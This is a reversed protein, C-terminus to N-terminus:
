VGEFDFTSSEWWSKANVPIRHNKNADQFLIERMESGGGGWSYGKERSGTTGGWGGQVTKSVGM